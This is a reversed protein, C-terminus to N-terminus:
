QEICKGDGVNMAGREAEEKELLFANFIAYVRVDVCSELMLRRHCM